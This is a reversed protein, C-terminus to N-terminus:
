QDCAHTSNRNTPGRSDCRAHLPRMACLAMHGTAINMGFPSPGTALLPISLGAFTAVLGIRGARQIWQKDKPYHAFKPLVREPFITLLAFLDTALATHAAVLLLQNQGDRWKYAAIYLVICAALLLMAFLM